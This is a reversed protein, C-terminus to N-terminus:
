GYSTDDILDFNNHLDFCFCFDLVVWMIEFNEFYIRCIRIKGRGPTVKEIHSGLIRDSLEAKQFGEKISKFDNLVVVRVGSGVGFSFVKGYRQSLRLMLGHPEEQHWASKLLVPLSGIIPWEFPGPPVNTPKQFYWYLFAFVALCLLYTRLNELHLLHSIISQVDM